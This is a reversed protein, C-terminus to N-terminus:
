KHKLFEDVLKSEDIKNESLARLIKGMDGPEIDSFLGSIQEFASHLSVAIKSIESYIHQINADAAFEVKEKASSVVSDVQFANAEKLIMEYIGSKYAIDYKHDDSSPITVNSYEAIIQIRMCFDFMEPLYTGDELFCSEYVNNVIRNMEEFSVCKKITIETGNYDKVVCNDNLKIYDDVKSISIKKM